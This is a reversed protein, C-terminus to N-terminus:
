YIKSGNAVKKVQKYAGNSNVYDAIQQWTVELVPKAREDETADEDGTAGPVAAPIYLYVKDDGKDGDTTYFNVSGAGTNLPMLGTPDDGEDYKYSSSSTDTISLGGQKVAMDFVGFQKMHQSGYYYVAAAKEKDNMEAPVLKDQRHSSASRSTATSHTSGHDDNGGFVHGVLFFIVLVVAVATWINRTRKAHPDSAPTTAQGTANPKPAATAQPATTARPAATPQAPSDPLKTGCHECFLSDASNEFGCNPCKKM